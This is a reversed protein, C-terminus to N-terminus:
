FIREEIVIQGAFALGSLLLCTIGYFTNKQTKAGEVDSDSWTAFVFLLMTFHFAAILKILTSKIEMHFMAYRFAYTTAVSLPILLTGVLPSTWM